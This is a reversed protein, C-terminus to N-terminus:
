CDSYSRYMGRQEDCMSIVVEAGVGQRELWGCVARSGGNCGCSIDVWHM